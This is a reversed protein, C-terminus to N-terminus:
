PTSRSVTVTAEGSSGALQEIGSDIRCSSTARRTTSTGTSSRWTAGPCTTPSTAWRPISVRQHERPPCDGRCDSIKETERYDSLTLTLPLLSLVDQTTGSDVLTAPLETDDISLTIDM